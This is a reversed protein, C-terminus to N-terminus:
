AHPTDGMRAGCNPCFDTTAYQDHPYRGCQDCYFYGNEDFAWKGQPREYKAEADKYGSNYAYELQEIAIDAMERARKYVGTTDQEELSKWVEDFESKHDKDPM